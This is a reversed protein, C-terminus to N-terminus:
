RISILLGISVGIAQDHGREFTYDYAPEIYWGFRRTPWPWFMFDLAIEGAVSNTTIGNKRIHIWEPGVGFMFEVKRSLTWPKKFLLDTDWETSHRTFTPTVGFELELWNEIPTIEVAVTPSLSWGGGSLSRAPEAGVELIAAAEKEPPQSAGADPPVQSDAGAIAAREQPELYHAATLGNGDTSSSPVEAQALPQFFTSNQRNCDLSIRALENSKVSGNEQASAAHCATLVAFCLPAVCMRKMSIEEPGYDILSTLLVRIIRWAVM